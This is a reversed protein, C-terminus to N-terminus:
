ALCESNPSQLWLEVVSPQRAVSVGMLSFAMWMCVVLFGGHEDANLLSVLLLEYVGRDIYCNYIICM